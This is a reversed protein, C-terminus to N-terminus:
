FFNQHNTPHSWHWRRAILAVAAIIEWRKMSVPLRTNKVGLRAGLQHAYALHLETSRYPQPVLMHPCASPCERKDVGGVVLTKLPIMFNPWVMSAPCHIGCAPKKAVTKPNCMNGRQPPMWRRHRQVLYVHCILPCITWWILMIYLLYWGNAIYKDGMCTVPKTSILHQISDTCYDRGKDTAKPEFMNSSLWEAPTPPLLRKLWNRRDVCICNREWAGSRWVRSEDGATVSQLFVQWDTDLVFYPMFPSLAVAAEEM